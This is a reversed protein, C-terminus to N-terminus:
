WPRVRPGTRLELRRDGWSTHRTWRRAFGSSRNPWILGRRWSAGFSCWRRGLKPLIRGRMDIIRVQPNELHDALWATSVLPGPPLDYTM